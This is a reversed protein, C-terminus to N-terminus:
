RSFTTLRGLLKIKGTKSSPLDMELVMDRADTQPHDFVMEM